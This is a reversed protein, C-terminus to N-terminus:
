RKRTDIVQAIITQGPASQKPISVSVVYEGRPDRNITMNEFMQALGIEQEAATLVRSQTVQALLAPRSALAKTLAQKAKDTKRRDPFKLWSGIAILPYGSNGQAKRWENWALLYGLEVTKLARWRSFTPVDFQNNLAHRGRKSVPPPHLRRWEDLACEVEERVIATPADLNAIM